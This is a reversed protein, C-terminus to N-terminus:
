YDYQDIEPEDDLPCWDRPEKYANQIAVHHVTDGDWKPHCCIVIDMSRMGYPCNICNKVNIIKM